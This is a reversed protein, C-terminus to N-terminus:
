IQWGVGDAMIEMRAMIILLNATILAEEWRTRSHPKRSIGSQQIRVIIDLITVPVMPGAIVPSIRVSVFTVVVAVVVLVDVAEAVVATTPIVNIIAQTPM